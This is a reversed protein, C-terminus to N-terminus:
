PESPAAPGAAGGGRTAVFVAVVVVAVVLLLALFANFDHLHLRRHGAVALAAGGAAFSSWRLLPRV